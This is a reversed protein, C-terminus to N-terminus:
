EVVVSVKANGGALVVHIGAPFRAGGFLHTNNANGDILARVQGSTSQGNYVTVTASAAATGVVIAHLKTGAPFTVTENATALYGGVVPDSAAM